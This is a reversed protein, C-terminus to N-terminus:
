SLADNVLCSDIAISLHLFFRQIYGTKIVLIYNWSLYPIVWESIRIIPPKGWSPDSCAIFVVWPYQIFLLLIQQLSFNEPIHFVWVAVKDKLVVVRSIHRALQGLGKVISRKVWSVSSMEIWYITHRRSSEKGSFTCEPFSLLTSSWSGFLLETFVNTCLRNVSHIM